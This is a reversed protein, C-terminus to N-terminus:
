SGVILRAECCCDTQTLENQTSGLQLIPKVPALQLAAIGEQVSPAGLWFAFRQRDPLLPLKLLLWSLQM